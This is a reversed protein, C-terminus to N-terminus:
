QREFFSVCPQVRVYAIGDSIWLVAGHIPVFVDPCYLAQEVHLYTLSRLLSRKTATSPRTPLSVSPAILSNWRRCLTASVTSIFRPLAVMWESAVKLPGRPM